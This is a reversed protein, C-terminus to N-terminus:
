LIARTNVLRTEPDIPASYPAIAPSTSVPVMLIEAQLGERQHLELPQESHSGSLPHQALHPLHELVRPLDENRIFVFVDHSRFSPIFGCVKYGLEELLLSFEPCLPSDAALYIISRVRSARTPRQSLNSLKILREEGGAEPVVFLWHSGLHRCYGSFLAGRQKTPRKRSTRKAAALQKVEVSDEVLPTSILARTIPLRGLLGQALALYGHPSFLSRKSEKGEATIKVAEPLYSGYLMCGCTQDQAGGQTLTFPRQLPVVSLWEARFCRKAVTNAIPDQLAAYMLTGVKGSRSAQLQVADWLLTAIQFVKAEDGASLQLPTSTTDHDSLGVLDLAVAFHYAEALSNDDAIQFALHGVARGEFEVILSTYRRTAHLSDNLKEWFIRTSLERDIPVGAGYISFLDALLAADRSNDPNAARVQLASTEFSM